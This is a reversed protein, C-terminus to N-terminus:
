KAGKAKGILVFQAIFNALGIFILVGHFGIKLYTLTGQRQSAMLYVICPFAIAYSFGCFAGVFRFYICIISKYKAVILDTYCSCENLSLNELIEADYKASRVMNKKQTEINLYSSYM